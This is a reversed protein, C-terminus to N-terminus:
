KMNMELRVLEHRPLPLHRNCRKVRTAGCREPTQTDANRMSNVVEGPYTRKTQVSLNGGHDQLGANQSKCHQSEPPASRISVQGFLNIIMVPIMVRM